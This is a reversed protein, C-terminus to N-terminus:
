PAPQPPVSAATSTTQQAQQAQQTQQSTHPPDQRGHRWHLYQKEHVKVAEQQKSMEARFSAHQLMELFFLCQPYIIYKAYKPQRWYQLYTIYNIFAPDQLHQNQGLYNLYWPNSLMQVFELEATFRADEPLAYDKEASM